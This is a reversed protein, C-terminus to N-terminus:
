KKMRYIVMEYDSSNFPNRTALHFKKPGAIIEGAYKNRLADFGTSPLILYETKYQIKLKRDLEEAEKKNEMSTFYLYEWPFYNRAIFARSRSTMCIRADPPLVEDIWKNEAYGNSAKLMVKERGSDSFISPALNYIGILLLPLICFLQLRAALIFYKYIKSKYFTSIALPVSWLVPELLFRSSVQGGILILFILASISIVEFKYYRFLFPLLGLTIASIGVLTSLKGISNTYVLSIPFPYSSDSYAKIYQYLKVVIPDANPMFLELLPSLPDGLYFWKFVLQPGLIVAGLFFLKVLMGFPNVGVPNKLILLLVLSAFSLLFSYKIGAAFFLVSLFLTLKGSTFNNTSCLYLFCLSTCLIGTLQHKQNPILFLLVPIGLFITILDSKQGSDICSVSANLFFGLGIIQIFAGFQPCGNAVGILNLMEGFGGMRFHINDPNYYISHNKLIEVPLALHYSLSDADTPVSLSLLLYCFFIFILIYRLYSFAPKPYPASRLNLSVDLASRKTILLFAAALMITWILGQFVFITALSLLCIIWTTWSLVLLGAFFYMAQFVPTHDKVIKKGAFDAVIAVSLGLIITLLTSLPAPILYSNLTHM